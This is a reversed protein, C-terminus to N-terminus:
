GAFARFVTRNRHSWLGTYFMNKTDRALYNAFIISRMSTKGSGSRGMLLVKPMTQSCFWTESFPRSKPTKFFFCDIRCLPSLVFVKKPMQAKRKKESWMISWCATLWIMGGLYDDCIHLYCVSFCLLDCCRQKFYISFLFKQFVTGGFFFMTYILAKESM